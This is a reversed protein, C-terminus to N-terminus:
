FAILYVGLAALLQISAKVLKLWAFRTSHIEKHSFVKETRLIIALTVLLPVVFMLSYIALYAVVVSHSFAQSLVGVSTMYLPLSCPLLFVTSLLALIITGPVDVTKMFQRIRAREQSHTDFVIKKNFFFDQVNLLGSVALIAILGWNLLARMDAYHEWSLISQVVSTLAVGALFYSVFIVGLFLLGIKMSRKRDKIHITLYGAFLFLLGLACINSGDVLGALVVFGLTLGRNEELTAELLGFQEVEQVVEYSTEGLISDSASVVFGSSMLIAFVVMSYM